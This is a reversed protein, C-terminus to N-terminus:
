VGRPSTTAPAVIEGAKEVRIDPMYKGLDLKIDLKYKLSSNRQQLLETLLQFGAFLDLGGSLTVKGEGYAPIVPFKNAVGSLVKHGEISASYSMGRLNLEISNPNIIHLEIEFEPLGNSPLIRFASVKLEPEDFNPSFTACASLLLIFFLTILKGKTVFM